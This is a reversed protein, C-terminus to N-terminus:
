PYLSFSVVAWGNVRSGDKSYLDLTCTCEHVHVICLASYLAYLFFYFSVSKVYMCM